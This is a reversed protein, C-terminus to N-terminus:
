LPVQVRWRTGNGASSEVAAQGKLLEVRRWVNGLGHGQSIARTDFGKGNDTVTLVLTKQLVSMTVIARSAESHRVLNILLEKFILWLHQRLELRLQGPVNKDIKLEHLIGRSELLDAAYRECRSLFERWDDHRPDVSWIIDSIKEKAERASEAIQEVYRGSREGGRKVADSYFSISSLTGSLDDHLDRAIKTRLREERLAAQLRLRFGMWLFALFVLIASARFWWTQWFPARIHIRLTAGDNNWVGDGNSALVRFTYEGPPVNTFYATRGSGAATMSETFGILEHRYMQAAPAVFELAAFEISFFNEFHELQIFGDKVSHEEGSVVLKTIVVPPVFPNNQIEDPRFVNFGNVGGFYFEGRSSRFYAGGKFELGQVGDSMGFNRFAKTAPHFRSLGRNTSLWLNGADDPLIGHVIANALGSSEDYHEFMETRPDFKNLGHYTGLWLNGERDEVISNVRDSSISTAVTDHPLFRRVTGTVPDLRNLGGGHTGIWIAGHRDELIALIREDSLSLPNHPDHHFRIFEHKGQPRYNLGRYTGVWLGGARDEYLTLVSNNSLSNPNSPVHRFRAIKKGEASWRELGGGDTGVWIAGERDRLLTIIAKSNLKTPDNQDYPITTFTLSSPDFIFLGGRETGVWIRGHRDEAFSLTVPFAFVRRQESAVPYCRFKERYKSFSSVGGANTGIWMVGARDKYMTRIANDGLSNPTQQESQAIVSRDLVPDWVLVGDSLTGIWLKGEDDESLAEISGSAMTRAAPNRPRVTEYSNTVPDVKFLGRATSGVWLVGGAGAHITTIRVGWLVAAVSGNERLQFLGHDAGVWITGHQDVALSWISSRTSATEDSSDYRVQVFHGTSPDFRNLGGHRTGIWLKGARDFCLSLVQDDSLSFPNAGNQRYLRFQGTSPDLVNLGGGDTGLWLLGSSDEVIARVNPHSLTTAVGPQHRYVIFQMGDFRNLGDRTGFWIFGQRDQLMSYVTSQSLGQETSLRHFMLSRQQSVTQSSLVISLLLTVIAATYHRNHLTPNLSIPRYTPYSQVIQPVSEKRLYDQEVYPFKGRRALSESFIQIEMLKIKGSEERDQKAKEQELGPLHQRFSSM